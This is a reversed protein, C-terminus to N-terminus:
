QHARVPSDSSLHMPDQWWQKGDISTFSLTRAPPWYAAVMIYLSMRITLINHNTMVVPAIPQLLISPWAPQPVNGQPMQFCTSLLHPNSVTQEGLHTHFILPQYYICPQLAPVQALLPKQSSIFSHQPLNSLPNWPHPPPHKAKHQYEGMTKTTTLSTLWSQALTLAKFKRQKDVYM